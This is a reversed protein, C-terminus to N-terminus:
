EMWWAILACLLYLLAAGNAWHRDMHPAVMVLAAIFFFEAAKM